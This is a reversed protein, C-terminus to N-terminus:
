VKFVSLNFHYFTLVESAKDSKIRFDIIADKPIKVIGSSSSTLVSAGQVVLRKSTVRPQEVGNVFISGNLTVNNSATSYTLTYEVNYYDAALVKITGDAPTCITNISNGDLMSNNKIVYYEGINTLTQTFPTASDFYIEGIFKNNIHIDSM